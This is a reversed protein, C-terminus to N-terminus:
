RVDREQASLERMRELHQEALVLHARAARSDATSRALDIEALARRSHFAIDDHM